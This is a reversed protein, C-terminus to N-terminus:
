AFTEKRVLAMGVEHVCVTEEECMGSIRACSEVEERM